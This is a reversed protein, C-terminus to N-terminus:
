RKQTARDDRMTTRLTRGKREIDALRRAGDNLKGMLRDLERMGERAVNPREEKVRDSAM